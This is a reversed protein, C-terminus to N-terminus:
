ERSIGMIDPKIILAMLSASILANPIIGKGIMLGNVDCHPWKLKDLHMGMDWQLHGWQIELRCSDVHYGM